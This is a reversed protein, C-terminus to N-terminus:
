DDNDKDYCQLLIKLTVDDPFAIDYKPNFWVYDDIGNGAIYERCWGSDNAKQIEAPSM